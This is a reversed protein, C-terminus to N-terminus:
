PTPETWTVTTNVVKYIDNASLVGSSGSTVTYTGSGGFTSLEGSVTITNNSLSWYSSKLLQESQQRALNMAQIKLGSGKVFRTGSIFVGYGGAVILSLILVSVVIEILSIGLSENERMFLSKLNLLM